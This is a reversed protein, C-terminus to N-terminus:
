AKKRDRGRGQRDAQLMRQVTPDDATVPPTYSPSSQKPDVEGLTRPPDLLALARTANEIVTLLTRRLEAQDGAPGEKLPQLVLRVGLASAAKEATALTVNRGDELAILRSRPIGAQQALQTQSISGRFHRFQEPLQM